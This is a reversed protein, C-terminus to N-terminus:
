CTRTLGGFIYFMGSNWGGQVQPGRSSVYVYGNAVTPVTFKTVPHTLADGTCVDSSYLYTMTVANFAYVIRGGTDGQISTNDGDIAWLIADTSDTSSQSISPTM